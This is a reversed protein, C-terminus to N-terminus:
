LKINFNHLYFSASLKLCEMSWLFIFHSQNKFKSLVFYTYIIVFINTIWFELFGDIWWEGFVNGNNLALDLIGFDM